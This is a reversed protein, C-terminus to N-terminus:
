SKGRLRVARDFCVFLNKGGTKMASHKRHEVRERTESSRNLTAPSNLWLIRLAGVFGKFSTILYYIALVCIVALTLTEVNSRQSLTVFFQVRWAIIILIAVSIANLAFYIVAQWRVRAAYREPTTDLEEKIVKEALSM